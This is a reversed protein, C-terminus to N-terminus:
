KLDKWTILADVRINNKAYQGIIKSLYESALGTGPRCLKLMEQTIKEGKKIEARAVISKRVIQRIALESKQPIKRGDGFATEITRISEVLEKFENKDLSAQHDPGPMTKDLTFHKEIVGAGLVRAALAVKIGLTHDSFGIPYNFEKQMTRIAKLNVDKLKVPYDTTCHLLVLSKAGSLNITHIAKKIELIDAMGTSCIIPKNFSAVKRLLDLNTIEGSPIKFAMVNIENLFIASPLDFCSSLFIIKKEEAYKKLRRFDEQSLELNKLMKFQSSGKTNKKQYSAKPANTTVLEETLYTQFKIADAKFNKAEEIMKKAIELNGNHNVGAEAIIFCPENEGIFKNGIRIKKIM